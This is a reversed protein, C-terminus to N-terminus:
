GLQYGGVETEGIAAAERLQELVTREDAQFAELVPTVPSPLALLVRATVNRYCPDNVEGVESVVIPTGRRYAAAM